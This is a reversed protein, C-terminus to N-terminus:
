PERPHEGWTITENFFLSADDLSHRVRRIDTSLVCITSWATGLHIVAVDCDCLQSVLENFQYLSRVSINTTHVEFFLGDTVEDISDILELNCPEIRPNPTLLNAEPAWKRKGVNSM